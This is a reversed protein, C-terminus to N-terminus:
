VGSFVGVRGGGYLLVGVGEGNGRLCGMGKWWDHSSGRVGRLFFYVGHTLALSLRISCGIDALSPYRVVVGDHDQEAPIDGDPNEKSRGHKTRRDFTFL